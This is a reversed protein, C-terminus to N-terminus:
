YFDDEIQVNSNFIHKSGDGFWAERRSNFFPLPLHLLLNHFDHFHTCIVINYNHPQHRTTTPIDFCGLM